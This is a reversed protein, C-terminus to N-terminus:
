VPTAAHCIDLIEQAMVSYDSLTRPKVRYLRVGLNRVEVEERPSALTTVVIVRVHSLVPEERIAQLVAAGDYKPLHLDLVIVCPEPEADPKRQHQVFQLGEEGDRLVELVYEEGIQDLAQRLLWIETEDDEIIVIRAPKQKV